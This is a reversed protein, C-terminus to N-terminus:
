AASIMSARSPSASGRYLRRGRITLLHMVVEEFARLGRAVIKERPHLQGLEAPRAGSRDDDAAHRQREAEVSARYDRRRDGGCPSIGSGYPATGAGARSDIELPTGRWRQPAM